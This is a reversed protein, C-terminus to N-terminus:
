CNPFQPVPGPDAIVHWWDLTLGHQFPYEAVNALFRALRERAPKRLYARVGMHAEAAYDAGPIPRESMGLTNFTTIDLEDDAPWVERLRLLRDPVAEAGPPRQHGQSAPEGRGRDEGRLLRGAERREGVPGRGREGPRPLRRPDAGPRLEVAPRDRPGPRPDGA